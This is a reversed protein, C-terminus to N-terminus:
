CWCGWCWAFVDNLFIVSSVIILGGRCLCVGWSRFWLVGVLFCLAEVVFVQVFYTM